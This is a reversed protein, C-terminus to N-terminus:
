FRRVRREFLLVVVSLCVSVSCAWLKVYVWVCLARSSVPPGVMRSMSSLVSPGAIAGDTLSFKLSRKSLM